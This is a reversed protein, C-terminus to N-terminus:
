VYFNIVDDAVTQAAHDEDTTSTNYDSRIHRQHRSHQYSRQQNQLNQDPNQALDQQRDQQATDPQQRDTLVVEIKKIAVGSEQLSRVIQPMTNAIEDRTRVKDAEIVGVIEGNIQQFKIQVRGLEPPDLRVTLRDANRQAAVQMLETIQRTPNSRMSVIKDAPFIDRIDQTQQSDSQGAPSAIIRDIASDSTITFKETLDVVPKADTQATVKVAATNDPDIKGKSGSQQLAKIFKDDTTISDKNSVQNVNTLTKQSARTQDGTTDPQQGKAFKAAIEPNLSTQAPEAKTLPQGKIDAKLNVSNNQSVTAAAVAQTTKPKSDGKQAQLPMDTRVKLDKTPVAKTDALPQNKLDTLKDSADAEPAKIEKAIVAQPQIKKANETSLDAIVPKEPAQTKIKAPAIKLVDGQADSTKVTDIKLAIQKKPEVIKEATLLSAVNVQQQASVDTKPDDKQNRDDPAPKGPKDQAMKESLVTDFDDKGATSSSSDTTQSDQLRDANAVKDTGKHMDSRQTSDSVAASRNQMDNLMSTNDLIQAISNNM